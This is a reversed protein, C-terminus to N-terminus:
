IKRGLLKKIADHDIGAPQPAAAAIMQQRNLEFIEERHVQMDRPAKVGVRVAEGKVAVVLVEVQHGPDLGILVSDDVKRTVSVTHRAGGGSDGPLGVEIMGPMLTIPESVHLAFKVVGREVSAIEIISEDNGVVIKEGPKRTLVLVGRM